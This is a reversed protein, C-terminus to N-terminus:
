NSFISYIFYLDNLLFSFLSFFFKKKKNDFKTISNINILLVTLNNHNFLNDYLNIYQVTYISENMIIIKENM